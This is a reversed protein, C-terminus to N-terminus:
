KKICIKDRILDISVVDGSDAKLVTLNLPTGPEGKIDKDAYRLIIDGNRMGSNYAPYGVYAETIIIGRQQDYAILVGIGGFWTQGEGDCDHSAFKPKEEPKPIEIGGKEKPPTEVIEIDVSKPIIDRNEGDKFGQNQGDQGNKYQGKGGSGLFMLVLLTLHLGTSVKLANKFTM